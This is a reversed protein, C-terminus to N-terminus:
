VGGDLSGRLVGIGRWDRSVQSKDRDSSTVVSASKEIYVTLNANSESQGQWKQRSHQFCRNVV